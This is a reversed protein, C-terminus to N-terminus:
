YNRSLKLKYRYRDAHYVGKIYEVPDGNTSYVVRNIVLTPFSTNMGLLLIEEKTSMSAEISQYADKLRIGNKKFIKYLSKSYDEELGLEYRDPIYSELIGLPIGDVIMLRKLYFVQEEPFLALVKKIKVPPHIHKATIVQKTAERGAMEETFSKLAPLREEIRPKRVTTGKGREKELFGQNSLLEITRRVTARSVNYTQQLKNESPIMHGELWEGTEIKELLIEKLQYYLPVFSKYDLRENKRNM